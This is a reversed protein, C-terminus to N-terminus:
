AAMTLLHITPPTNTSIRLCHGIQMSLRDWERITCLM